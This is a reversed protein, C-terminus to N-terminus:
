IHQLWMLQLLDVTVLRAFAALVQFGFQTSVYNVGVVGRFALIPVVPRVPPVVVSAELLSVVVRIMVVGLVHM